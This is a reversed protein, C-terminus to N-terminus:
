SNEEFLDLANVLLKKLEPSLENNSKWAFEGDKALQHLNSFNALDIVWLHSEIWANDTDQPWEPWKDELIRVCINGDKQGPLLSTKCSLTHIDPDPLGLQLLLQALFEDVMQPSPSLSWRSPLRGSPLQVLVNFNYKDSDGNEESSNSSSDFNNCRQFLAYQLLINPGFRPFNGRGAIGCRGKPNLPLGNGNLMIGNDNFINENIGKDILSLFHSLRKQRWQCGIELINQISADQAHKQIDIPFQDIPLSYNNPRYNPLLIFWDCLKPDIKLRRTTGEIYEWKPKKENLLKQTFSNFDILLSIKDHETKQNQKIEVSKKYIKNWLNIALNNWFSRQYRFNQVSPNKYVTCYKKKNFPDNLNIYDNCTNNQSYCSFNSSSNFRCCALIILFIPTLPPPLCPRLSFNIALAYRQSIWIEKIKEKELKLAKSILITLFIPWCFLHIFVLFEILSLKAIWHQSPCRPNAYGGLSQCYPRNEPLLQRQCENSQHLVNLDSTFFQKFTWIFTESLIIPQTSLDPFLTSKLIITSIIILLFYFLLFPLLIKFILIKIKVFLPGIKSSLPIYIFLTKILEYLLYFSWFIRLEYTLSSSILFSNNNRRGNSSSTTIILRIILLLFLFIGNLIIDFLLFLRKGYFNSLQGWCIFIWISEILWCLAWLWIFQEIWGSIFCGPQAISWCLFILYIIKFTLSLWYKAIPTGYFLTLIKSTSIISLLLSIRPSILKTFNNSTGIDIGTICASNSGLLFRSSRSQRRSRESISGSGGGDCFMLSRRDPSPRRSVLIDTHKPRQGTSFLLKRSQNTTKRDIDLMVTRNDEISCLQSASPLFSDTVTSNDNITMQNVPDTEDIGENGINVTDVPMLIGSNSRRDEIIEGRGGLPCGFQTSRISHISNASSSRVNRPFHGDQLLAVTPSLHLKSSSKKSLYEQNSPRIWFIIPFVFLSSLLIKIWDPILYFNTITKVNIQGYLFCQIWHQYFEHLIFSNINAEFALQILNLKRYSSSLPRCLSNFTKLKNEIQGSNIIKLSFNILQNELKELTNKYLIWKNCKISLKKSCKALIISLAIPENSYACFLLVTEPQLLFLSWFSFIRFSIESDKFQKKQQQNKSFLEPLFFNNCLGDSLETVFKNFKSAINEDIYDLHKLGILQELIIFNFFYTEESKNAWKILFESNLPLPINQHEKEPLTLSILLFEFYQKETFQGELCIFNLPSSNGLKCALELPKAWENVDPASRILLDLIEEGIKDLNNAPLFALLSHESTSVTLLIQILYNKAEKIESEIYRGTTALAVMKLEKELWFEFSNHEFVCSQFLSFASKLVVCLESIDQVVLSPVGCQLYIVLELLSSLTIGCFILLPLPKRENSLSSSLLITTPQQSTACITPTQSHSLSGSISTKEEPVGILLAPPPMSLKIATCARFLMLSRENPKNKNWILYLTNFRSDVMHVSPERKLSFEKTSINHINISNIGILLTEEPSEHQLLASRLAKSAIYALPDNHEGNTIIWLGCRGFLQNFGKELREINEFGQDLENAFAALRSYIHKVSQPIQLASNIYIAPCNQIINESTSNNLLGWESDVCISVINTHIFDNINVPNSTPITNYIDEDM